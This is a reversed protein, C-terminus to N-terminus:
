PLTVEARRRFIKAVTAVTTSRDWQVIDMRRALRPPWREPRYPVLAILPCGAHRMEECFALWEDEDPGEPGRAPRCIGLDTLLVVPTGPPPPQYKPRPEGDPGEARLPTGAFDFVQVHSEGVVRQIAHTLWLQDREFPMMARGADLLLHVGRQMTRAPVVPLRLLPEGRALVEAAGEVDLAAQEDVTALAATLIGRTWHPTFLPDLPPPSVDINPEQQPFPEAAVEPILGEKVAKRFGVEVSVAPGAAALMEEALDDEDEGDEEGGGGEVDPPLEPPTDPTDADKEEPGTPPPAASAADPDFRLGLMQAVLAVTQPDEVGLRRVAALLDGLFINPSRGSM